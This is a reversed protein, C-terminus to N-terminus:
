GVQELDEREPPVRAGLATFLGVAVLGVLPTGCFVWTVFGMYSGRELMWPAPALVILATAAIRYALVARPAPDRGFAQRHHRRMALAFLVLSAFTMLCSAAVGM